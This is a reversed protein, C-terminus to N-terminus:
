FLSSDTFAHTMTLPLLNKWRSSSDPLLVTTTEIDAVPQKDQEIFDDDITEHDIKWGQCDHMRKKSLTEFSKGCGQCEHPSM